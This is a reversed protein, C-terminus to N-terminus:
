DADATVPQTNALPVTVTVMSEGAVASMPTFTIAPSSSITKSVSLGSAPAPWHPAAVTALVFRISTFPLLPPSANKMSKESPGNADLSSKLMSRDVPDALRAPPPAPPFPPLPPPANKIWKESPGNADLSSKLMSRDVPDSLRVTTPDPPASVILKADAFLMVSPPPVSMVSADPDTSANVTFAPTPFSVTLPPDYAVAIVMLPLAP